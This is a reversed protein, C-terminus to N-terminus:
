VDIQFAPASPSSASSPFAPTTRTHVVSLCSLRVLCSVSVRCQSLEALRSLLIICPLLKYQCPPSVLSLHTLSILCLRSLGHRSSARHPYLPSVHSPSPQMHTASDNLHAASVSLRRHPISPSDYLCTTREMLMVQLQGQHHKSRFSLRSTM